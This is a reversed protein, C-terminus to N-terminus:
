TCEINNSKDELRQRLQQPAGCQSHLLALGIRRQGALHEVEEPLGQQLREVLHM